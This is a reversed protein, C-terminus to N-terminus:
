LCLSFLFWLFRYFRSTGSRLLDLPHMTSVSYLGLSLPMTCHTLPLSCWSFWDYGIRRANWAESLSKATPLVERILLGGKAKKRNEVADLEWALRIM